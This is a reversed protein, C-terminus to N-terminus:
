SVTSFETLTKWKLNQKSSTQNANQHKLLKFFADLISLTDKSKLPFTWGFKGDIVVLIYRFGRINKPCNDSMDLLYSFWTKDISNNKTKITKYNRKPSSSSIEDIFLKVLDSKNKNEFYSDFSVTYNNKISENFIAQTEDNPIFIPVEFYLNSITKTNDNALINYIIDQLDAMKFTLHFGHNKTFNIYTKCFGFINGLPLQGKIKGRNAEEHDNILM